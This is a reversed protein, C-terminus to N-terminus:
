RQRRARAARARAAGEAAFFYPGPEAAVADLWDEDLVSGAMMRRRATDTFFRRRLEITDPQDLDIWHVQGNDVRDFRTNLGTGIETVLGDPHETASSACGGTSSPPARLVAVAGGRTLPGYKSTDYDISEVLEM